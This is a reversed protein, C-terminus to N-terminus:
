EEPRGDDELPEVILRYGAYELATEMEAVFQSMENANAHKLAATFRNVPAAANRRKSEVFQRTDMETNRATM